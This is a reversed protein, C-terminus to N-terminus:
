PKEKIAVFEKKERKGPVSYLKQLAFLAVVTTVFSVFVVASYIEKTILGIALGHLAIIFAVEGRPAMGVGVILSDRRKLGCRMAAWGCGALKTVIAVVSLAAILAPVTWLASIEVAVGIAVFFVSAFIAELFEGGHHLFRTALSRSLAVGAIFAGIIAELGIFDAIFAFLFAIGIGLMFTLQPLEIRLARDFKDFISPLFRSGALGGITVFGVAVVATTGIGALSFGTALSGAFSLALLGVIDDVVAAGLMLRATETKIVGLERLLAATMGICTAVLTAGIFISHVLDLSFAFGIITGGIFPLVGGAVGVLAAKRNYIEKIDTHLGAMFLLFVSGMRALASVTENYSVWGLISPGLLIGSLILWIQSPQKLKHSIIYAAIAFILILGISYMITQALLAM